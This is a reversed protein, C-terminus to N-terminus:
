LVGCNVWNLCSYGGFQQEELNIIISICPIPRRRLRSGLWPACGPINKKQRVQDRAGEAVFGFPYHAKPQMGTVPLLLM